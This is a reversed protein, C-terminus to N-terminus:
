SLNVYLAVGGASSNSPQSYFDYGSLNVNSLFSKIVQEKTESIGIIDFSLKMCDLLLKLEDVHASRSRLNSHLLSFSDKARSLDSMDQIEYYKSNIIHVLNEDLDFDGLDPLKTLKSRTEHPVLLSLQSPLDIGNLENLEIKDLYNLPCIEANVEFTCLLCYFSM